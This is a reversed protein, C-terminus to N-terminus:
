YGGRAGSGPDNRTVNEDGNRSFWYLARHCSVGSNASLKLLGGLTQSGPHKNNVTGFILLSDQEQKVESSVALKSLVTTNDGSPYTYRLLRRGRFRDPINMDDTQVVGTGRLM